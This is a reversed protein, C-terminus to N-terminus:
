YHAYAILLLCAVMGATLMIRLPMWWDPTLGQRSFLRDIFLVLVFGIALKVAVEHVGGIVFFFAYLAPLVSLVYGTGATAANSRAAFGWLVGSMFALIIEAYRLTAYPALFWDNGWVETFSRVFPLYTEGVGWVMPLLGALGLWLATRPINRTM